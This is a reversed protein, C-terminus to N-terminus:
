NGNNNTNNLPQGLKQGNGGGTVHNDHTMHQAKLPRHRVHKINEHLQTRNQGNNKNVLLAKSAEKSLIAPIHMLPQGHPM